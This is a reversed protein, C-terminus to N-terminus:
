PITALGRTHRGASGSLQTSSTARIAGDHSLGRPLASRSAAGGRHAPPPRRLGDCSPRPPTLGRDVVGASFVCTGFLTRVTSPAPLEFKPNLSDVGATLHLGEWGSDSHVSGRGVVLPEM